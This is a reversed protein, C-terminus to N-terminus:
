SPGFPLVATGDAALRRRLVDRGDIFHCFVRDGNAKEDGRGRFSVKCELHLTLESPSLNAVGRRFLLPSFSALEGGLNTLKPLSKEVRGYPQRRWPLLSCSRWTHRNRPATGAPMEGHPCMPRVRPAGDFPGGQRPPATAQRRRAFHANNWRGNPWDLPSAHGTKARRRASGRGCFWSSVMAISSSTSPAAPGPALFRVQASRLRRLPLSPMDMPLNAVAARMQAPAASIIDPAASALAPLALLALLALAGGASSACATLATSSDAGDPLPRAGAGLAAASMLASINTSRASKGVPWDVALAPRVILLSDGRKLVCVSDLRAAMEVRLGPLAQSRCGAVRHENLVFNLRGVYLTREVLGNRRRQFFLRLQLG